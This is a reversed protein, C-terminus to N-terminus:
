DVDSCYVALMQGPLLLASRTLDARKACHASGGDPELELEEFSGTQPDLRLAQINKLEAEVIGNVM